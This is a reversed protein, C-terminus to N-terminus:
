QSKQTQHRQQQIIKNIKKILNRHVKYTYPVNTRFMPNASRSEPFEQGELKDYMSKIVKKGKFSIEYIPKRPGSGKRFTIIWEKAHLRNFRGTDWSLVQNFENFDSKSFYGENYLFLLMDLDSTSLGYKAKIFTRVVKWYKLYDSKKNSKQM